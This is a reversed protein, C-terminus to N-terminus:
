LAGTGGPWAVAGCTLQMPVGCYAPLPSVTGTVHGASDAARVRLVQLGLPVTIVVYSRGAVPVPLFKMSTGDSLFATVSQTGPSVLGAYIRLAPVPRLVPVPTLAPVPGPAKVPTCSSRASTGSDGGALSVFYCEASWCAARGGPRGTGGGDCDGIGYGTKVVVRWRLGQTEGQGVVGAAVPQARAVTSLHPGANEWLGYPLWPSHYDRAFPVYPTAVFAPPRHRFYTMVMRVTSGSFVFGALRFLHGCAVATVPRAGVTTGDRMIAAVFSADPGAEIFGFGVNPLGPVMTLFAPYGPTAAGARGPRLIDASGNGFTVAPLCSGVAGDINRLALHWPKGGATGSAFVGGPARPDPPSLTVRVPAAPAQKGQGALGAGLGALCVLAALAAGLRRRRARLARGRRTVASRPTGSVPVATLQDRLLQRLTGEDLDTM